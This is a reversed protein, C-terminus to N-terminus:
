KKYRPRCKLIPKEYYIHFAFSLIVTLTLFVIFNSFSHIEVKNIVMLSIVLMHFLYIPYSISGIFYSFQKLISREFIKKNAKLFILIMSSAFLPTVYFFMLGVQEGGNVFQGTTYLAAILSLVCITALVSIHIRRLQWQYIYLMFGFAISDLRFAVLRRVDEEFKLYDVFLYRNISFFIVFIIVCATISLSAKKHLVYLFVPFVVYFWEEVSLSWSVSYYDNDVTISFFNQVYFLYQVFDTVGAGSAVFSITVLAATYSPITRLWRRMMFISFNKKFPAHNICWIIQPALVFGSLIFFM